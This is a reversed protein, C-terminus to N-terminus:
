KQFQRLQAELEAIRQNKEALEKRNEILLQDKELLQQNQEDIMYQATNQDLISLAESFM